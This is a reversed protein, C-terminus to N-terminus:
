SSRRPPSSSPQLVLTGGAALTGGLAMAFNGSWFFGNASWCRVDDDPGFRVATALAVDPHVVGRHASLIGKPKSTSGSSFFLVRPIAPSCRRAGDGRGTARNATSRPGPLDDWREIGAGAGRRGHRSPAPVSVEGIAARRADTM